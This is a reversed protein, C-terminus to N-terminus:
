PKGQVHPMGRAGHSKGLAWEIKENLEHDYADIIKPAMRYYAPFFVWGEPYGGDMPSRQRVKIIHGFNRPKWMLSAASYQSQWSRHVRKKPKKHNKRWWVAGGFEQVYYHPTHADGGVVTSSSTTVRMKVSRAMVGRKTDHASGTKKWGSKKHAAAIAGRNNGYGGTRPMEWKIQNRLMGAYKRHVKKFEQAVPVGVHKMRLAFAKLEPAYYEVEPGSAV